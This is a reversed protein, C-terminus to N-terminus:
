VGKAASMTPSVIWLRRRARSTPSSGTGGIM